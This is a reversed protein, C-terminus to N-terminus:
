FTTRAMLRVAAKTFRDLAPAEMLRDDLRRRYNDYTAAPLYKVSSLVFSRSAMLTRADMTDCHEIHPRCHEVVQQKFREENGAEYAWLDESVLIASRRITDYVPLETPYERRLTEKHWRDLCGSYWELPRGFYARDRRRNLSDSVVRFLRYQDVTTDGHAMADFVTLFGRNLYKEDACRGRAIRHIMDYGQLVPLSDAPTWRSLNTGVIRLWAESAKKISAAGYVSTIGHALMGNHAAQALLLTAFGEVEAPNNFNVDSIDPLQESTM